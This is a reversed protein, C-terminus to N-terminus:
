SSQKKRILTHIAASSWLVLLTSAISAATISFFDRGLLDLYDMVAVCAPILLLMLNQLLVDSIAKVTEIRVWKKQLLGFLLLLGIIAPPLKLGTFDIIAHGASLCAFIVAFGTIISNM